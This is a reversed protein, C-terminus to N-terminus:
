SSYSNSRLLCFSIMPASVHRLRYAYIAYFEDFDIAQLDAKLAVSNSPSNRDHECAGPRFAQVGVLPNPRDEAGLGGKNCEVDRAKALRFAPRLQHRGSCHAIENGLNQRREAKITDMSDPGIDAGGRKEKRRVGVRVQEFAQHNTAAGNIRRERCSHQLVDDVSWRRGGEFSAAALHKGGACRDSSSSWVPSAAASPSDLMKPRRRKM